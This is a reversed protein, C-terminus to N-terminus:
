YLIVQYDGQDRGIIIDSFGDGNFDGIASIHNLGSGFDNNSDYPNRFAMNTVPFTGETFNGDVAYNSRYYVYGPNDDNIFMLGPKSLGDFLNVIRANDFNGQIVTGNDNTFVGPVPGTSAGIVADHDFSNTLFDGSFIFIRKLPDTTQYYDTLMLDPAENWGLNFLGNNDWSFKASMGPEVNLRVSNSQDGSGDWKTSVQLVQTAATDRGKFLYYYGPSYQGIAVEDKGDGNIDRVYGLFIGFFYYQGTEMDTLSFVVVKYTNLDDQNTLDITLNSKTKWAPDGPILYVKNNRKSAMLIDKYGDGNFDGNMALQTGYGGFDLGSIVVNPVSAISGNKIGFFVYVKHPNAVGFGSGVALDDVGDGDIDGGVVPSGFAGEGSTIDSGKFCQYGSGVSDALTVDAPTNAGYIVCFMDSGYGGVAVDSLGDGNVDGINYSMQRLTTKDQFDTGTIVKVHHMCLDVAQSSTIGGKNGVADVARVAFYYQCDTTQPAFSCPDSFIRTDPGIVDFNVAEGSNIDGPIAGTKLLTDTKCANDFKAASDIPQRSYRVEYGVAGPGTTGNDGVADWALKVNPQRVNTASANLSVSGPAVLDVNGKLSAITENGAADLVHVALTNNGQDLMTVNSLTVPSSGQVLQLPLPPTEPQITVTNGGVTREMSNIYGNALNDDQINVILNSQLGAEGPVRDQAIGLMYTGDPQAQVGQIAVTVTPDHLDVKINNYSQSQIETSGFKAVAYVDFEEGDNVTVQITIQSNSLDTSAISQTGKHLTVSDPTGCAASLLVIFTHDTSDCNNGSDPCESNGIYGNAPVGLLGVHCQSLTLKIDRQASADNGAADQVDVILKTYQGTPITVTVPPEAGGPNTLQTPPVLELVDTCNQWSSDCGTAAKITYSVADESTSFTTVLQFGPTSNDADDADTLNVPDAAPQDINVSPPTTDVTVDTDITTVNGAEDSVKVSIHHAGSTLNYAFSLTGNQGIARTEQDIGDVTLIADQGIADSRVKVQTSEGNKIYANVPWLFALTPPTKDVDLALSQAPPTDNLGPSSNGVKDTVVAYVTYQGDDLNIQYTNDGSFDTDTVVVQGQAAYLKLSGSETAQVHFDYKNNSDLEAENLVGVPASDSTCEPKSVQPATKDVLVPLWRTTPKALADNYSAIWQGNDTLIEVEIVQVGDPLDNISPALNAQDNAASATGYYVAHFGSAECADGTADPSNTCVRVNHPAAMINSYQIAVTTNAKIGWGLACAKNNDGEFCIDTSCQTDSSCQQFQSSVIRVFATNVQVYINKLLSTVNGAKDQVTVVLKVSGEPLDVQGFDISKPSNQPIDTQIDVTYGQASGGVPGVDLVAQQGAELGGLKTVVDFQFGDKNPDADMNYLLYAISPQVFGQIIPPTRDVKMNIPGAQANIGASDIVSATFTCSMNDPLVLGTFACGNNIITCTTEQEGAGCDWKLTAESGDEVAQTTVQIVANCDGPIPQCISSKLNIYGNDTLGVFNIQPKDQKLYLRRPASYGTKNGDDASAIFVDGTSSLKDVNFTVFGNPGSIDNAYSATNKLLAVSVGSLPSQNKDQVLVKIQFPTQAIPGDKEPSVITVRPVDLNLTAAQIVEAGNNGAADIAWARLENVGPLLTVSVFDTENNQAVQCTKSDGNVLLCVRTGDGGGTQVKVHVTTQFGPSNDDSDPLTAPDIDQPPATIAVTPATTDLNFSVNTLGNPNDSAKNGFSDIVEISLDYNGDILPSGGLGVLPISYGAGQAGLPSPADQDIVLIGSNHETIKIHPVKGEVFLSSMFLNLTGSTVYAGDSPSVIKLLPGPIGLTFKVPSSSGPNPANDMVYCQVENGLADEELGVNSIVIKGDEPVTTIPDSQGILAPPSGITANQCYVMLQVPVNLTGEWGVEFNMDYVLPTSPDTDDKALLVEGQNPSNIVYVSPTIHVSVDKTATGERGCTDRAIVELTYAGDQSFVTDFSFKDGTLASTAYDQDNIKLAVPQGNAGQVTGDVTINLGNSPDNDTDDAPTLVTKQPDTISVVPDQTDVTYVLDLPASNRTADTTDLVEATINVKFDNVVDDNSITLIFRAQGNQDLAVQKSVPQGGPMTVTLKAQDCSKDPNSVIFAAQVGPTDPDRDTLLCQSTKPLIEIGCTGLDLKLQKTASTIVGKADRVEVQVDYGAANGPLTVNTFVGKLSDNADPQLTAHQSYENGNVVLYLTTNADLGTAIVTIDTQFGPSTRYSQPEDDSKLSVQDQGTGVQGNDTAFSFDMTIQHVEAGDMTETDQKVDASDNETIDQDSSGPTSNSSCATLFLLAIIFIFSKYRM